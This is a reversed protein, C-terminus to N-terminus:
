PGGEGCQICGRVRCSPVKRLGEAADRLLRNGLVQINLGGDLDSRAVLEVNEDVLINDTGSIIATSACTAAVARQVNGPDPRYACPRATRRKTRGIDQMSPLVSESRRSCARAFRRQFMSFVAAFRPSVMATQAAVM